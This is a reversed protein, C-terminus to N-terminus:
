HLMHFSRIGLNLGLQLAGRDMAFNTNEAQQAQRIQNSAENELRGDYSANNRAPSKQLTFNQAEPSHFLVDPVVSSNEDNGNIM